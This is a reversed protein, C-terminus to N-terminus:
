TSLMRLFFVVMTAEDDGMFEFMKFGVICDSFLWCSIFMDFISLADVDLTLVFELKLLPRNVGAHKGPLVVGMADRLAEKNSCPM